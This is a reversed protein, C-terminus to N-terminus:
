MSIDNKDMLDRIKKSFELLESASLDTYTSLSKEPIHQLLAFGAAVLYRLESETLEISLAKEERKEFISVM